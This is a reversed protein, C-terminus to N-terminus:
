AVMSRGDLLSARLFPKLFTMSASSARRLRSSPMIWIRLSLRSSAKRFFRLHTGRTSEIPKLVRIAHSARRPRDGATTPANM